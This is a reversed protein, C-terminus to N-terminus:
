CIVQSGSQDQYAHAVAWQPAGEPIGSSLLDDQKPHRSM